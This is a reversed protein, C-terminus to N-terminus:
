FLGQQGRQEYEWTCNTSGTREMKQNKEHKVLVGKETLQNLARRISTILIKDGFHDKVQWPTMPTNPHEKFFAEITDNQSCANDVLKAAVEDSLKAGSDYIAPEM